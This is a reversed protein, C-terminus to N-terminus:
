RAPDRRRRLWGLALLAGVVIGLGDALLDAWEASRQPVLLQLLEIAGGFALLALLVALRTGRPNSRYGFMACWALAAFAVLHNLKDWGLSAQEPPVPKLALVAVAAALVLLLWRWLRM